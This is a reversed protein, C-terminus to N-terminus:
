ANPASLPLASPQHANQVNCRVNQHIRRVQWRVRGKRNPCPLLHSCRGRTRCNTALLLILPVSYLFMDAVVTHLYRPLCWGYGSKPELESPNAGKPSSSGSGPISHHGNSNSKSASHSKQHWSRGEVLYRCKRSWFPEQIVHRCCINKNCIPFLLPVFVCLVSIISVM